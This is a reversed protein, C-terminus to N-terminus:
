PGIRHFLRDPFARAVFFPLYCARVKWDASRWVWRSNRFFLAVVRVRANCIGVKTVRLFQSTSHSGLEPYVVLHQIRNGSANRGVGYCFLHPPHM